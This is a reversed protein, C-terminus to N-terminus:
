CRKNRDKWLRHDKRRIVGIKEGGEASVSVGAARWARNAPRAEDLRYKFHVQVEKTTLFGTAVRFNPLPSHARRVRDAGLLRNHFFLGGEQATSDYSTLDAHVVGAPRFQGQYKICRFVVGTDLASIGSVIHLVTVGLCEDNRVLIKM